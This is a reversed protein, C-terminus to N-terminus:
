DIGYEECLKQRFAPDDLARKLDDLRNDGLLSRTLKQERQIGASMGEARGAARGKEEIGLIGKCVNVKEGRAEKEIKMGTMEEMVRVAKRDVTAFAANAKVLRELKEADESYKIFQM